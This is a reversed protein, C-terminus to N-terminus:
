GALRGNAAATKEIRDRGLPETGGECPLCKRQTLNDDSAQSMILCSGKTQTPLHPAFQGLARAQRILALLDTSALEFLDDMRDLVYYVTQYIDIRYPTRLSEIPDFPRRLPEPVKWPM